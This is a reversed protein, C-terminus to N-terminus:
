KKGAKETIDAFYVILWKGLEKNYGLGLSVKRPELVSLVEIVQGTSLEEQIQPTLLGEKNMFWLDEGTKPVNINITCKPPNPDKASPAKVVQGFAFKIAENWKDPTKEEFKPFTEKIYEGMNEAKAFFPMLNDKITKKDSKNFTEEWDAFFQNPIGKM